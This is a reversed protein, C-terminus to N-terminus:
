SSFTGRPIQTPNPAYFGKENVPVEARAAAGGFSAPGREMRLLETRCASCSAAHEALLEKGTVCIM